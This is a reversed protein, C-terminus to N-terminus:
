VYNWDKPNSKRGKAKEKPNMKRRNTAQNEGGTQSSATATSDVQMLDQDMRYPLPSQGTRHAIDEEILMMLDAKLAEPPIPLGRKVCEVKLEALPLMTFGKPKELLPNKVEETQKRHLQLLRRLIAM